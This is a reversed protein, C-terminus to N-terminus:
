HAGEDDEPLNQWWRHLGEAPFYAREGKALDQARRGDVTAPMSGAHQRRYRHMKAPDVEILRAFRTLTMGEPAPRDGRRRRKGAGQGTRYGLRSGPRSQWWRYLDELRFHAIEGYELDQVRRGDATRPMKEPSLQRYQGVTKYDVGILSAFRSATVEEDPAVGLEELPPVPRPRRPEFPALKEPDYLAVKTTTAPRANWWELLAGLTRHGQTPWATREAPDALPPLPRSHTTVVRRVTKASSGILDAFEDLTVAQDPDTGPPLPTDARRKPVQRYRVPDPFDEERALASARSYSYGCRNAWEELTLLGADAQDPTPEQHDSM